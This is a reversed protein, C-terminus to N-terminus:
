NTRANPKAPAPPPVVPTAGLKVLLDATDKHVDVRAGGRSNGGNRGMANDIPVM